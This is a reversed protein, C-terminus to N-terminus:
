AIDCTLYKRNSRSRGSGVKYKKPAEEGSSNFITQIDWFNRIFTASNTAIRTGDTTEVCLITMEDGSSSADTYLIFKAIDIVEGEFDQMKRVDNGKTMSYIDTAKLNPTQNVITMTNDKREIITTHKKRPLATM